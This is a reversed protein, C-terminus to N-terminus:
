KAPIFEVINKFGGYISYLENLTESFAIFYIEIGHNYLLLFHRLVGIKNLLNFFLM